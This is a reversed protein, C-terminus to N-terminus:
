KVCQHPIQNPSGHSCYIMYQTSYSIFNCSIFNINKNVLTLISQFLVPWIIKSIHCGFQFRWEFWKNISGGELRIGFSHTHISVDKRLQARYM